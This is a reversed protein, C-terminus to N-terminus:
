LVRNNWPSPRSNQYFFPSKSVGGKKRQVGKLSKEKRKKLKNKHYFSNKSKQLDFNLSVSLM